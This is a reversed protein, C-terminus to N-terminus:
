QSSGAAGWAFIYGKGDATYFVESKRRSVMIPMATHHDLLGGYFQLGTESELKIAIGLGPFLFYAEVSDTAERNVDDKASFLDGVFEYHCTTPVSLIKFCDSFAKINKIKREVKRQTLTDDSFSIKNMAELEDEFAATKTPDINDNANRHCSNGLGVGSSSSGCTVIGKSCLTRKDAIGQARSLAGSMVPDFLIANGAAVNALQNIFKFASPMQVDVFHKRYYENQVISRPGELMNPAARTNGTSSGRIAAYLNMGLCLCCMRDGFGTGFTLHLFNITSLPINSDQACISCYTNSCCITISCYIIPM